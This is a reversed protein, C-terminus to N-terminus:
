NQATSILTLHTLALNNHTVLIQSRANSRNSPNTARSLAREHQAVVIEAAKNAPSTANALHTQDACQFALLGAAAGAMKRPHSLCWLLELLYARM